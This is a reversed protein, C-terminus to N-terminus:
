AATKCPIGMSAKKPAKTGAPLSWHKGKQLKGAQLEAVKTALASLNKDLVM